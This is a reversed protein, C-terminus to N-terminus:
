ALDLIDALRINKLEKVNADKYHMKASITNKNLDKEIEFMLSGKIFYEYVYNFHMAGIRTNVRSTKEVYNKARLEKKITKLFEKVEDTLNLDYMM